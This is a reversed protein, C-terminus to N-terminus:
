PIGRTGGTLLCAEAHKPSGLSEPWFIEFISKATGEQPEHAWTVLCAPAQASFLVGGM